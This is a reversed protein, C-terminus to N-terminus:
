RVAKYDGVDALGVGACTTSFACYQCHEGSISLPFVDYIHAKVYERCALIMRDYDTQVREGCDVRKVLKMDIWTGRRPWDAYTRWRDDADPFPDWFERQTTAWCYVTWQIAHRLFTPRRGTKYDEISVYPQRAKRRLCLRDMTGTLHHVGLDGLDIPLRFPMELALLLGNDTRLQDYYLDLRELGQARMTGYSDNVLWRDVAKTGPLEEVHDPHWYYALSARAVSLAAPNGNFHETEMVQLAHHVVTGYVTRSLSEPQPGIGQAALDYLKKQQACRSYANLSSQRIDM